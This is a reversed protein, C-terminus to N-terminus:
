KDLTYNVFKDFCPWGCGIDNLYCHDKSENHYRSDASCPLITELRYKTEALKRLSLFNDHAENFKRRSISEITLDM